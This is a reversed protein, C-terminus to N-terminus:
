SFLSSVGQGNHLKLHAEFADQAAMMVLQREAGRQDIESILAVAIRQASLLPRDSEEVAQECLERVASPGIGWRPAMSALAQCTAAWCALELGEVEKDFPIDM